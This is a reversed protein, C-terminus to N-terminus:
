VELDLIANFVEQPLEIDNHAAQRKNLNQRRLLAQKKSISRKENNAAANKRLPPVDVRALVKGEVVAQVPMPYLRRPITYKLKTVLKQTLQPADQRHIIFTLADVRSYNVRVDLRVVDAPEYDLFKTSLSAYGHSTSKLRSFFNYDLESLPIKYILKILQGQNQIDMLIGKYHETWKMVNNVTNEPTVITARLIPETVYEIQSFDPFHVPNNVTLFQKPDAADALHVHYTVNPVTTLVEVGFENFLREKIIQLHFIGLFGGRFGPGLADSTEPSIQFSPDNLTLKQLAEKLAKYDKVPYLGTFVTPQPPQYGPFPQATPHHVSTITDGVRVQQPDKIGTILYGVDGAKLATTPTRDPTLIGLEHVHFTKQSAMLQVQDNQQLQGDFLRLNVIVGKFPDYVSDFILAKLPAQIQGQPAPLYHVIAELVEPVGQGTKASIHLIPAQALEPNLQRIQKETAAIQANASDIKNIVPLLVLGAQEALRLNAVTQAQVGQTADVLLIAGDSAALSKEVEYNFDVHGPTDILNLEYVQGDDAQYLNRATRAKVTVGHSKEVTLDDLLQDSMQRANVTQTLAMIQDALTSKGHDIHAIISFNRIHTLEM